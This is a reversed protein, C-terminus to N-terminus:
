TWEAMAMLNFEYYFRNPVTYGYITKVQKDAFEKCRFRM